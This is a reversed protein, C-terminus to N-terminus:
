NKGDAVNGSDRRGIQAFYSVRTILYYRRRLAWVGVWGAAKDRGPCALAIVRSYFVV